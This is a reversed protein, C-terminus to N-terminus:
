NHFVRLFAALVCGHVGCCVIDSTIFGRRGSIIDADLLEEVIETVQEDNM